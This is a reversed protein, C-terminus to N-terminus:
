LESHKHIHVPNKRYESPSVGYLDHFSRSFAEHSSFGYDVAIDLISRDTDRIEKLAFALRRFRLYNRLSMGSIERFKRSLHYESYGASKSLERLLLAESNKEKIGADIRDITEQILRYWEQM